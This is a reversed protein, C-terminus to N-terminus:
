ISLTISFHETCIFYTSTFSDTRKSFSDHNGVKIDADHGLKSIDGVQVKTAEGLSTCCSICAALDNSHFM